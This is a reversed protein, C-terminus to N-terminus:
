STSTAMATSIRSACQETTSHFRPLGSFGELFRFAGRGDGLFIAPYAYSGKRAPPAVIDLNGDGNFDVLDFSMQWLGEKPLRRASEFQLAEVTSPPVIARDLDVFEGNEVQDAVEREALMRVQAAEQQLWMNHMKSEPDEPPIGKLWVTDGEERVIEMKFRVGPHPYAYGGELRVIAAKPVPRPTMWDEVMDEWTRIERKPIGEDETAADQEEEADQSPDM